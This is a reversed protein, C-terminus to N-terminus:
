SGPQVQAQAFQRLLPLDDASPATVLDFTRATQLTIGTIQHPPAFLYPDGRVIRVPTDAAYGLELLQGALTKIAGEPKIVEVGEASANELLGDDFFIYDHLLTLM